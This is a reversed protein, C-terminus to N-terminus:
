SGEIRGVLLELGKQTARDQRGRAEADAAEIRDIALISLALSITELEERIKALEQEATSVLKEWILLWLSL